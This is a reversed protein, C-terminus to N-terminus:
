WTRAVHGVQAVLVRSGMRRQQHLDNTQEVLRQAHAVVLGATAIVVVIILIIWGAAFFRGPKRPQYTKPDDDM